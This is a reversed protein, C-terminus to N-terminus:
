YSLCSSLVTIKKRKKETMKAKSFPGASHGNAGATSGQGHQVVARTIDIQSADGGTKRVTGCIRSLHCAAILGRSYVCMTCLCVCERESCSEPM